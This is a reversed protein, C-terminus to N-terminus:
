KLLMMKGTIIQGSVQLRYVYIGSALNAGNFAVEHVGARVSGNVLESVQRGLVDFVALRVQGDEPISYRIVANPNFPNPYAGVQVIDSIQKEKGHQEAIPDPVSNLYIGALLQATQTLEDDPHNRLLQSLYSTAEEYNQEVELYYTFLNYHALLNHVSDYSSFEALSLLHDRGIEYDSELMANNALLRVAYPWLPDSQGSTSQSQLYATLEAQLTQRPGESALGKMQRHVLANYGILALPAFSSQRDNEIYSKLVSLGQEIEGGMSVRMATLLEEPVRTHNDTDDYRNSTSNGAIMKQYYPPNPDTSLTNNSTVWSTGDMSNGPGGEWYNRDAWVGSNNEARIHPMDTEYFSNYGGDASYGMFVYAGNQAKLMPGAGYAIVNYGEFGPSEAFSPWGDNILVQNGGNGAFVSTTVWLNSSNLFLGRATNYRVKNGDHEATTSVYDANMGYTNNEIINGSVSANSQYLWMGITNDEIVNDTILVNTGTSTLHVGTGNDSIVNDHINITTSSGTAWIGTTANKITAYNITGSSGSQFVLGKGNFTIKNSTTGNSLLHGGNNVTIESNNLT